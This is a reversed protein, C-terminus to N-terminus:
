IPMENSDAMEVGFNSNYLLAQDAPRLSAKETDSLADLPTLLRLANKVVDSQKFGDIETGDPAVQVLGTWEHYVRPYNSNPLLVLQGVQLKGIPKKVRLVCPYPLKVDIAKSSPMDIVNIPPETSSIKIARLADCTLPKKAAILKMAEDYLLGDFVPQTVKKARPYQVCYLQVSFYEYKVKNNEKVVVYDIKLARYDMIIFPILFNQPVIASSRCCKLKDVLPM